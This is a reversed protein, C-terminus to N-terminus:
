HLDLTVKRSETRGKWWMPDLIVNPNGPEAALVKGGDM